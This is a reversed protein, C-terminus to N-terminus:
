REVNQDPVARVTAPIIETHEPIVEHPMHKQAWEILAETPLNISPKGLAFILSGWAPEFAKASTMRRYNVVDRAADELAAKLGSELARLAAYREPPTTM